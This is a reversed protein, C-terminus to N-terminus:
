IKLVGEDNNGTEGEKESTQASRHRICAYGCRQAIGMSMIVFFIRIRAIANTITVRITVVSRTQMVKALVTRAHSM